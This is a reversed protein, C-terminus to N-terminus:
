LEKQLSDALLPALSITNSTHLIGDCSQFRSVGAARILALDEDSCLAHVTIVDISSAGAELLLSTCRRVTMGSSVVDDVIIAHRGLVDLTNPLTVIVDRDNNRIKTATAFDLGTKRSVASVWQKSENDPGVLIAGAHIPDAMIAEAIQGTASLADAEFSKFVDEISSVRHLHPDVTIIRDFYQPLLEGIVQQSITEGQHFAKDQRMYCLYPCLLIIRKAGSDRLAQAAFIVNILKENPHDLCVYVVATASEPSIQIRSEGDPFTHIEILESECNLLATLAIASREYGPYIHLTCRSM